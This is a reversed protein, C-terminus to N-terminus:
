RRPSTRPVGRNPTTRPSYGRRASNYASRSFRYDYPHPVFHTDKFPKAYARVYWTNQYFYPYYYLDNYKYFLVSGNRYYPTGNTIVISYDVDARIIDADTAYTGWCSSLLMM